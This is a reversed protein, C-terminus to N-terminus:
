RLIRRNTSSKNALVYKPYHKTFGAVSTIKDKWFSDLLFWEMAQKVDKLTLKPYAAIFKKIDTIAGWQDTLKPISVGEQKLRNRVVAQLQTFTIEPDKNDVNRQIAYYKPDIGPYQKYINILYNM